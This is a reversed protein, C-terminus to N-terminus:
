KSYRRTKLLKDASKRMHARARHLYAKVTGVPHGLISAIEQCNQDQLYFLVVIPRYVEPLDTILKEALDSDAITVDFDKRRDDLPTLSELEDSEYRDVPKSMRRLESLCTNITIRYLWSSFKSQGRFGSIARWARIFAEQAVDKARESDGLTRCALNYIQDQFAEVLGGFAERDGKKARRILEEHSSITETDPPM